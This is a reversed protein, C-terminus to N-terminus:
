EATGDGYYAVTNQKVAQEILEELTVGYIEPIKIFDCYARMYPELGGKQEICYTALVHGIFYPYSDQQYPSNPIPSHLEERRLEWDYMAVIALQYNKGTKEIDKETMMSLVAAHDASSVQQDLPYSTFYRYEKTAIEETFSYMVYEALGESFIKDPTYRVDPSNGTVIHTYEHTFSELGGCYLIRKLRFAQSQPSGQENRHTSDFYCVTNAAQKETYTIGLFARIDAAVDFAEAAIQPVDRAAYDRKYFYCTLWDSRVVYYDGEREPETDAHAPTNEQPPKADQPPQEQVKQEPEQLPLTPSCSSLIAALLLIALISKVTKM